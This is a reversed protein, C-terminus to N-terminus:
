PTSTAEDSTAPEENGASSKGGDNASAIHKLLAERVKVILSGKRADALSALHTKDFIPNRDPSRVLAIMLYGLVKGNNPPIIKQKGADTWEIKQGADTAAKDLDAMSPHLFFFGVQRGLHEITVPVGDPAKEDLLLAINAPIM